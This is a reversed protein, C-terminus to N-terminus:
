DWLEFLLPPKNRISNINLHGFIIRDIIKTCISQLLYNPNEKKPFYELALPNLEQELFTHDEFQWSILEDSNDLSSVIVENGSIDLKDYCNNM